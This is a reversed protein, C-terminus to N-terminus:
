PVKRYLVYEHLDTSVPDPAYHEPPPSGKEAVRYLHAGADGGDLSMRCYRAFYMHLSWRTWLGEDVGIVARPPVVRAVARVDHIMGADRRVGGYQFVTAALAVAVCFLSFSTLRRRVRAAMRDRIWRSLGPACLAALAIAFFPLATVLYFGRQEKTVLLPLSGSLGALLGFAAVRWALPDPRGSRRFGVVVALCLIAPVILELALKGVLYFRAETEATPNTFTNVLRQDYYDRFSRAITEDRWLVLYLALPIATLVGAQIIAKKLSVTRLTVAAIVPLALPFAGQIGKCLTAGFVMLGSVLLWVAGGGAHHRLLAHASLLVFVSMTNEQMDNAFSWFCVPVVIWLLVPLWAPEREARDPPFLKKWLGAILIANVVATFFSYMRETYMGSGLVKFFLAQIWLALPPQHHYSPMLTESLHLNWWTGSGRAFNNAVSAYILGDMFMGDQILSPLLLGALVAFTFLYFPRQAVPM